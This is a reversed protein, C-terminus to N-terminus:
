GMSHEVLKFNFNRDRFAKGIADNAGDGALILFVPLKNLAWFRGFPELTAGIFQTTQKKTDRGFVTGQAGICDLEDPIIGNQLTFYRGIEADNNVDTWLLFFCVTDAEGAAAVLDVVGTIYAGWGCIYGHSDLSKQITATMEVSLAQAKAM